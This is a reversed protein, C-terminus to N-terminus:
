RVEYLKKIERSHYKLKMSIKAFLSKEKKLSEDSINTPM